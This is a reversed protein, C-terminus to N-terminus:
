SLIMNFRVQLKKEELKKRELYLSSIREEVKNDRPNEKLNTEINSKYNKIIDENNKIKEKYVAILPLMDEQRKINFKLEENAEKVRKIRDKYNRIKNLINENEYYQNDLERHFEKQLAMQNLLTAQTYFLVNGYKHKLIEVGPGSQSLIDVEIHIEDYNRSRKLNKTLSVNEEELKEKESLSTKMDMALKKMKGRIEEVEKAKKTMKFQRDENLVIM